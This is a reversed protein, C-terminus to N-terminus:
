AIARTRERGPRSRDDGPRLAEQKGGDPRGVARNIQWRLGASDRRAM